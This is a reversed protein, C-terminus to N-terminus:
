VEHGRQLFALLIITFLLAGVVTLVLILWRVPWVKKDSVEPEVIVQLYNIDSYARERWFLYNENLRRLESAAFYSLNQLMKVTSGKEQASELWNKVDELKESEQGQESLEIYGRVLERTQSGYELIRNDTSLRSITSEISDIVARQYDMQKKFSQARSKGWQNIMNDFKENVQDLVEDAMQKAIEPDEDEVELRVSEYITKSSTVRDNYEEYLYYQASEADPDIDYREYLDFKKIIADRVSTAEFYQLLQETKSEESYTGINIPYVVAVSQFRPPMISPLSIVVGVIAAVIAVIVLTIINKRILSILSSFNFNGQDM